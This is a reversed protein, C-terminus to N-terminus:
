GEKNEKIAKHYDRFNQHYSKRCDWGKWVGDDSIADEISVETGENSEIESQPPIVQKAETLQKAQHEIQTRLAKIEADQGCREKEGAEIRELLKQNTNNLDTLAKMMAGFDVDDKKKTETDENSINIGGEVQITALSHYEERVGGKLVSKPNSPVYVLSIEFIEFDKIMNVVVGDIEIPVRTVEKRGGKGLFGVSLGVLEKAKVREWVMDGLWSVKSIQGKIFVGFDDVVAEVTKGVAEYIDHMFFLGKTGEMYDKMASEMESYDFIDGDRDVMRTNAYGEIIREEDSLVKFEAFSIMKRLIKM